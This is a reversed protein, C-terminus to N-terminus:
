IMFVYGLSLTLVVSVQSEPFMSDFQRLSCDLPLRKVHPCFTGYFKYFQNVLENGNDIIVNKLLNQFIIITHVFSVCRDFGCDRVHNYEDITLNM